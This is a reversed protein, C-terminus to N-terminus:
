PEVKATEASVPKITSVPPTGIKNRDLWAIVHADELLIHEGLRRYSEFQSETFFQNLTTDFPFNRHIRHYNLVDAPEDGTLTSKIYLLTGPSDPLEPYIIEGELAHLSNGPFKEFLLVGEAGSPKEVTPTSMESPRPPLRTPLDKLRIEIGFDLRAKRIAMGIGEFCLDGDAEADCIIIKRCRRRLLEHLGMNEFHGGDSLYLYQSTDDTRGRLENILNLLGFRPSDGGTTLRRTNRLWWGLRVNFITMLFAMPMSSHFGMNPSAAAGSIAVASSVTIGGSERKVHQMTPAFGNYRITDDTGDTWGTSYGSFLPTIAFSGAKREQYALDKGTTLNIATCFIPFPGPYCGPKKDLGTWGKPLLHTVRLAGDAIDFGTFWNPRRHPNSAGAYCRALRDRYFTNMSFDNIDLRWSFIVAIISLVAFTWIWQVFPDPVVQPSPVPSLSWNTLKGLLVFLGVMFVPPALKTVLELTNSSSSSEDGADKLKGDTKRSKGLLVGSVSSVAWAGWTASTAWVSDTLLDFLRPSLLSIGTIFMWAIGLLFSEARLRAIWERQASGMLKGLLGTTLELCIFPVALLMSPLVVVGLRAFYQQGFAFTTVFFLVRIGHMLLVAFVVAVLPTILAAGRAFPHREKSRMVLPLSLIGCGLPFLVLPWFLEIEERETTAATEVGRPRPHVILRHQLLGQQWTDWTWPMFYSLLPQREPPWVWQPHYKPWARRLRSLRPQRNATVDVKFNELHSNEDFKYSTNYQVDEKLSVSTYAADAAASMSAGGPIASRYLYPSTILASCLVACKLPLVSGSRRPNKKKKVEGGNKLREKEAQEAALKAKGRLADNYPPFISFLFIAALTLTALVCTTALGRVQVLHSGLIKDTVLLHPLMLLTMIVTVLVVLNLLTNRVWVAAISWMDSSFVSVSPSLYNSYRRLWRIPEPTVVPDLPADSPSTQRKGHPIPDMEDEITGLSGRRDLWNALFQHIYGGGSVSSLYTFCGLARRRALGQLIGLNFTASRIGGGSLCIGTPALEAALVYADAGEKWQGRSRLEQELMWKSTTYQVLASLRSQIDPHKRLAAAIQTVNALDAVGIRQLLRAVDKDATHGLIVEALRQCYERDADFMAMVDDTDFVPPEAPKEVCPQAPTNPAPDEPTM